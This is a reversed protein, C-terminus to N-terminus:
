ADVLELIEDPIDFNAYVNQVDDHDELLDVLRLVKKADAENDLEITNSSLMTAEASDVAVGAGDLADRVAGVEAPPVSVPMFATTVHLRPM